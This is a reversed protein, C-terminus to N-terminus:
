NNYSCLFQHDIWYNSNSSLMSKIYQNYTIEKDNLLVYIKRNNEEFIKLYKFEFEHYKTNSDIIRTDDEIGYYKIGDYVIKSIIQKGDINCQVVTISTSKQNQSDSVFKDM